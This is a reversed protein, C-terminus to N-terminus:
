IFGYRVIDKESLRGEALKQVAECTEMIRPLGKKMCRLLSPNISSLKPDKYRKWMDDIRRQTSIREGRVNSLESYVVISEQWTRPILLRSDLPEFEKREEKNAEDSFQEAVVYHSRFMQAIRYVDIISDTVGINIGNEEIYRAGRLEHFLQNKRLPRGVDHLGAALSVEEKILRESLKPYIKTVKDVIEGSILYSDSLHLLYDEPGNLNGPNEDMLRKALSLIGKRNMITAM